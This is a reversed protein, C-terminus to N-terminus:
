HYAIINLYEDDDDDFPSCFTGDISVSKDGSSICLAKMILSLPPLESIM